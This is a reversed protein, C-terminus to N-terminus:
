NLIRKLGFYGFLVALPKNVNYGPGSGPPVKTPDYLQTQPDRAFVRVTVAVTYPPLNTAPPPPNMAAPQGAGVTPMAPHNTQVWVERVFRVDAPLPQGVGPPLNANARPAVMARYNPDPAVNPLAPGATGSTGPNAGIRMLTTGGVNSFSPPVQNRGWVQGGVTDGAGGILNSARQNDRGTDTGAATKMTGETTDYLFERVFLVPFDNFNNNYQPDINYDAADQARFTYHTGGVARYPDPQTRFYNMRDAALLAAQEVLGPTRSKKLGSTAAMSIGVLAVVLIMAASLVEM